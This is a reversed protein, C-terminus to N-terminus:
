ISPFEEGHKLASQVDTMQRTLYVHFQKSEGHLFKGDFWLEQVEEFIELYRINGTLHFLERTKKHCLEMTSSTATSKADFDSDAISPGSGSFPLPLM